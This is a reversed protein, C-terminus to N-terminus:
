AASPPSATANASHAIADPMPASTSSGGSGRCRKPSPPPCAITAHVSDKAAFSRPTGIWLSPTTRPSEAAPSGSSSSRLAQVVAQHAAHEPDARGAAVDGADGVEAEERELM